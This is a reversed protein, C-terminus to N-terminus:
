RTDIPMLLGCLIRTAGTSKSKKRTRSFMLATKELAANIEMLKIEYRGREAFGLLQRTLDAGINVKTEIKKLKEYHPHGADLNFLLLSTYGQIAMLINNFDHAIGGALTGIAEMKQVDRFQNEMKRFETMDRAIGCLDVIQGEGDRLPTKIVRFTRGNGGISVTHEQEITEGSLVKM